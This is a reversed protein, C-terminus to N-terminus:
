FSNVPFLIYKLSFQQYIIKRDMIKHSVNEVFFWKKLVKRCKWKKAFISFQLKKHNERFNLKKNTLFIRFKVTAAAILGFPERM